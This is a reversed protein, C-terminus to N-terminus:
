KGIHASAEPMVNVNATGLTGAFARGRCPPSM